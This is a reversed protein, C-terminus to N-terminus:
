AAGSWLVGPCWFGFAPRGFGCSSEMFTVVGCRFSSGRISPWTGLSAPTSPMCGTSKLVNQSCLRKLIKLNKDIQKTTGTPKVHQWLLRCEKSKKPTDLSLFWCFITTTSRRPSSRALPRMAPVTWTGAMSRSLSIWFNTSINRCWGITAKKQWYEACLAGDAAPHITVVHKSHMKTKQNWSNYWFGRWSCCNWCPFVLAVLDGVEVSLAARRLLPHHDQVAAEPSPLGM